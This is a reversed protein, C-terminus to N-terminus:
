ASLPFYYSSSCCVNGKSEDLIRKVIDLHGKTAANVLTLEADHELSGATQLCELLPLAKVRMGGDIMDSTLIFCTPHKEMEDRGSETLIMGMMNLLHEVIRGIHPRCAAYLDTRESTTLSISGFRRTVETLVITQWFQQAQEAAAKKAEDEATDKHDKGDELSDELHDHENEETVTAPRGDNDDNDLEFRNEAGRAVLNLFHITDSRLIFESPYATGTL